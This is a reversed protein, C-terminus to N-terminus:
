RRRPHARPVRRPGEAGEPRVDHPVLPRGGGRYTGPPDHRGLGQRPLRPLSWGAREGYLGGNNMTGRVTDVLNEGGQAGQIKWSIPATSGTLTVSTLGRASKFADNSNGNQESGMPRVQVALKHPKGDRMAEPIAFSPADSWNQFTSQSSTPISMQHSGIFTGDLWALLTGVQGSQYALKVETADAAGEYTGRYWLDGYHYGYESAFLVPQGAPIPTSSTSTTKNADVWSSDDFDARSEPSEASTKWKTLAPLAVTPAGALNGTALRSGSPGAHHRRAQREVVGQHHRDAGM